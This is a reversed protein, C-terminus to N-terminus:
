SGSTFAMLTEARSLIPTSPSSNDPHFLGAFVFKVNDENQASKPGRTSRGTWELPLTYANKARKAGVPGYFKCPLFVPGLLGSKDTMRRLPM